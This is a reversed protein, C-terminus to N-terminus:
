QYALHVALVGPLARIADIRDLIASATPAEFLLVLKGSPDARPIEALKTATISAHVADIADQRVFAVCSAIHLERTMPILGHAPGRVDPLGVRRIRVGRHHARHDGPGDGGHPLPLGETGPAPQNSTGRSASGPPLQWFDYARFHHM